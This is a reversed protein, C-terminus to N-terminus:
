KTLIATRNNRKGFQLQIIGKKNKHMNYKCILKITINWTHMYYIKDYEGRM